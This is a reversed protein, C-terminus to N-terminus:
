NRSSFRLRLFGKKVTDYNKRAEMIGEYVQITEETWQQKVEFTLTLNLAMFLDVETMQREWLLEQIKVREEKYMEEYLRGFHSFTSGRM